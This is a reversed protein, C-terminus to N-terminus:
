ATTAEAGEDRKERRRRVKNGGGGGGLKERIAPTLTSVAALTSGATDDIVQPHSLPPHLTLLFCRSTRM